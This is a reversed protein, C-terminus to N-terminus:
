LKLTKKVKVYSFVGLVDTSVYFKKELTISLFQSKDHYYKEDNRYRLKM